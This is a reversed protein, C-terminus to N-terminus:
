PKVAMLFQDYDRYYDSEDYNESALVLCVSGSSFNELERWVMKPIYLGYYSRNLFFSKRETGDDLIVEFSGSVAIMFAELQKHAHGARTEGGPVDYLYYVRKLDFPVHRSGEVFTLNGRPDSIKPLDIIKALDLSM